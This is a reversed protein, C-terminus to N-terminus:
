LLWFIFGKKGRMNLNPIALHSFERQPITVEVIDETKNKGVKKGKKLKKKKGLEQPEPAM